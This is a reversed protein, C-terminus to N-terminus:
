DGAQLHEPVMDRPADQSLQLARVYAVVAWRDEVNPIRDGYPPMTRIGKVITNYLHGAPRTRITPDHLNAAPVWTGATGSSQLEVARRNVPGNGMGDAGHCPLCHITFQTQGRKLLRSTLQIQEPFADAFTVDWRNQEANWTATYGDYLMPNDRLHGRAVTGAIPPRMARGDAFIEAADQAEYRPQKDMDQFIHIRPQRSRDFRGRAAVVLPIFTLVILVMAVGVIWFPPTVSKPDRLPTPSTTFPESM